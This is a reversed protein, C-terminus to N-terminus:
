HRRVALEALTLGADIRAEAIQQGIRVRLERARRDRERVGVIAEARARM